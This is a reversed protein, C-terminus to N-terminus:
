FGKLGGDVETEEWGEAAPDKDLEILIETPLGKAVMRSKSAESVCVVKV